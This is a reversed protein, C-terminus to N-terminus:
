RPRLHDVLERFRDWGDAEVGDGIRYWVLPTMPSGFATGAVPAALALRGSGGRLHVVTGEAIPRVRLDPGAAALADMLSRRGPSESLLTVVDHSM